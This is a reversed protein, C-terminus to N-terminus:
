PTGGDVNNDQSASTYVVPNVQIETGDQSINVTVERITQSVTISM